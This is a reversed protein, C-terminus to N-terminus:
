AQAVTLLPTSPVNLFTDPPVGLPVGMARGDRTHRHANPPDDPM